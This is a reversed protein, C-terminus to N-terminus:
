NAPRIGRRGGFATGKGGGRGAAWRQQPEGKGKARRIRSGSGGPAKSLAEERGGAVSQAQSALSSLRRWGVLVKEKV